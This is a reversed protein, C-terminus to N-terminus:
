IFMHHEPVFPDGFLILARFATFRKALQGCLKPVQATLERWGPWSQDRAKHLWPFAETAIARELVFGAQDLHERYEAEDREEGGTVAMMMIDMWKAFDPEPGKQLGEILMLKAAPKMAKRVNGLIAVAKPVDWDHIVLKLTYLDGGAPVEEFFNGGVKQLRPVDPAGAVVQPQDLLIGEYSPFKELLGALFQGQGGGVDVITRYASFDFAKSIAATLQQTGIDRIRKPRRDQRLHSHLAHRRPM